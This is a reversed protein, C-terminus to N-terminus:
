KLRRHRDRGAPALPTRRRARPPREKARAKAKRRARAKGEAGSHLREMKTGMPVQSNRLVWPSFYRSRFEALVATMDIMVKDLQIHAHTVVSLIGGNYTANVFTRDHLEMSWMKTSSNAAPWTTSPKQERPISSTNLQHEMECLLSKFFTNCPGTIFNMEPSYPPIITFEAEARLARLTSRCFELNTKADSGAMTRFCLKFCFKYDKM